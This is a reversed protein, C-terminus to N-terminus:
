PLSCLSNNKGFPPVCQVSKGKRTSDLWAAGIPKSKPSRGAPKVAARCILVKGATGKPFFFLM